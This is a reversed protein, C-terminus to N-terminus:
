ASAIRRLARAASRRPLGELLEQLLAGALGDLNHAQAQRTLAYFHTPRGRGAGQRQEVIEVAGEQLLIGLHHRMNAATTGLAQSLDSASLSHKSSLQELIRQRTSDM